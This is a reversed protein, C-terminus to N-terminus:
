CASSIPRLKRKGAGSVPSGLSSGISHDSRRRSGWTARTEESLINFHPAQLLLSLAGQRDATEIAEQYTAEALGSLRSSQAQLAAKVRLIEPLCYSGGREIALRLATDIHALGQEIKGLLLLGEALACTHSATSAQYLGPRPSLSVRLHEIGEAALGQKIKLEGLFGRSVAVYPMFSHKIAYRGVEGIVSEARIWDENWIFVQATWILAICITVPHQLEVAEAITKEAEEVGRDHSGSLWLSRALGCRARIRHDYLGYGIGNNWRTPPPPRSAVECYSIAVTQNGILHHSIGLLWDSLAAAESSGISGAILASRHALDLATAMAGMRHSNVIWVAVLRLQSPEDALSEAIRLARQFEESHSDKIGETFMAALGFSERLKLEWLSGALEPAMASLARATWYKCESWLSMDLFVATAGACLMASLMPHEDSSFCWELATRVNGINDESWRRNLEIKDAGVDLVATELVRCFYEAHAHMASDLEGTNQLKQFAYARTTDLLRFRREGDDVNVNVFSKAVLGAIVTAADPQSRCLSPGFALAAAMEFPGTLTSLRSLMAREPATLLEYSWDLMEVITRHRPPTTKGSDGLLRLDEDLRNRTEEMGFAGVWGAALEIALPLGDVRRCIDSIVKAQESRVEFNDVVRAVRDVFLRAAPYEMMTPPDIRSFAPPSRLVPLRIVWEGDARLPERSTLLLHVGPADLFLAEVARAIWEIGHECSDLVLLMRTDRLLNVLSRIPAPTYGTLGVISALTAPVLSGDTLSGLDVFQIAGDFPQLLSHAVAIAVTTKGVGGPGVVTVFRKALLRERISAVEDDRGITPSSRWPLRHAPDTVAPELGKSLGFSRAVPVTFAYGKGPVRALYQEGNSGGALIRRLGAVQFRLNGEEVTINPWVCNVLEAKSVPNPAKAVLCMLVDLARDGIKVAQGDLELRRASPILRFRGFQLIERAAHEAM